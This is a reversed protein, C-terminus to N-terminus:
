QETRRVGSLLAWGEEGEPTGFDFWSAYASRVEDAQQMLLGALALRGGPATLRALLPALVVLPHALINAVV